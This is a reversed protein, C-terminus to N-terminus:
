KEGSNNVTVMKATQATASIGMSNKKANHYINVECGGLQVFPFKCEACATKIQEDTVKPLPDHNFDVALPNLGNGQLALLLRYGIPEDGVIKGDKWEYNPSKGTLIAYDMGANVGLLNVNVNKLM